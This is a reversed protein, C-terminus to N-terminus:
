IKTGVEMLNIHCEDILWAGDNKKMSFRAQYLLMQKDVIMVYVDVGNRTEVGGVARAESAEYLANCCEKTTEVFQDVSGFYEQTEKTQLAFAAEYNGDRIAQLLGAITGAMSEAETDTIEANAFPTILCFLLTILAKKM